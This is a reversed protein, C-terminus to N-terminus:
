SPTKRKLRRRPRRLGAVLLLPQRHLAHPPPLRRHRNLLELRHGLHLRNLLHILDELLHPRHVPSGLLILDGLLRPRHVVLGLLLHLRRIVRM